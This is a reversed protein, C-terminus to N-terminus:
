QTKKLVTINRYQSAKKMKEQIREMMKDVDYDSDMQSVNITFNLQADQSKSQPTIPSNTSFNDKFALFELASVLSEFQATQVANLMYEPHSKTGDVWAPGTYDVYGGKAFQWIEAGVKPRKVWEGHINEYWELTEKSNKIWGFKKSMVNYFKEYFEGNYRIPEEDKQWVWNSPVMVDSTQGIYSNEDGWPKRVPQTNGTDTETNTDDDGTDTGPLTGKYEDGKVVAKQATKLAEAAEAADYYADDLLEMYHLVGSVGKALNDYYGTMSELTGEIKGHETQATQSYKLIGKEFGESSETCIDINDKINTLVGQGFLIALGVGNNVLTDWEIDLAAMGAKSSTVYEQNNDKLYALVKDSGSNILNTAFDHYDTMSERKHDLFNQWYEINKDMQEKEADYERGLASVADDVSQDELNQYDDELEKELNRIDADYVGSTDMKMMALKKEKDRVEEERDARDRIRREEDIMEQISELYKDNEKQINEYKKKLAELERDEVDMMTDIILDELEKISEYSKKLVERQKEFAEQQAKYYSDAAERARTYGDVASMLNDYTQQLAAAGESDGAKNLSLIEEQIDQLKGADVLAAGSDDFSVYDSFGKQLVDKWMDEERHAANIGSQNLAIQDNLNNIIEKTDRAVVDANTTFEIEFELNEFDRNLEENIRNLNAYRDFDKLWDVMGKLADRANEAAEKAKELDETVGDQIAKKSQASIQSYLNKLQLYGMAEEVSTLTTYSDLTAEILSLMSYTAGDSFEIAAGQAIKFGDGTASIAENARFITAILQADTAEQNLRKFTASIQNLYAEVDDLSGKGELLNSVSNMAAEFKEADTALADMAQQASGFRVHDINIQSLIKDILEADVGM